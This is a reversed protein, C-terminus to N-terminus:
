LAKDLVEIQSRLSSVLSLQSGRNLKEVQDLLVQKQKVLKSVGLWNKSAFLFRQNQRKDEFVAQDKRKDKATKGKSAESADISMLAIPLRPGLVKDKEPELVAGKRLGFRGQNNSSRSSLEKTRHRFECDDMIAFTTGLGFLLLPSGFVISLSSLAMKDQSTMGQNRSLGERHCIDNVERSLARGAGSDVSRDCAQKEVFLDSARQRM